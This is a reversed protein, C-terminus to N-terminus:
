HQQTSPLAEAYKQLHFSHLMTSSTMKTLFLQNVLKLAVYYVSCLIRICYQLKLIGSGILIRLCFVIKKGWFVEKTPATEGGAAM